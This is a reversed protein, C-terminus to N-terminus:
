GSRGKGVGILGGGVKRRKSGGERGSEVIWGERRRYM